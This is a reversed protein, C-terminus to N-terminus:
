ISLLLYRAISLILTQIRTAQQTTKCTHALSASYYAAINISLVHAM